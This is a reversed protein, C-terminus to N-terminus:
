SIKRTLMMGLIFEWICGGGQWRLLKRIWNRWSIRWSLGSCGVTRFLGMKRSRMSCLILWLALLRIGELPILIPVPCTGRWSNKLFVRGWPFVMQLPNGVHSLILCLERNRFRGSLIELEGLVQKYRMVYWSILRDGSRKWGSNLSKWMEGSGKYRKCYSHNLTLTKPWHQPPIKRHSSSRTSRTKNRM